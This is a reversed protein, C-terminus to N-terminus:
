HGKFKPKRKEQFAHLGEKMDKTAALLGFLAAEHHLGDEQSMDEGRLIAALASQIALPARTMLTRALKEAGSYLDQPPFVRSVLGMALAESASVAEGTLILDLAHARGVLRPLRQTGGFGPIMGLTVEPFGFQADESAVRLHCALALECGGGLAYGNVAAIVPKPFHEIRDLIRQGALAHAQAKYADLHALDNLDTGAAFAKDGAGTLIVARVADDHELTRFTDDLEKLLAHDLANLKEPRSLTLWCLRDHTEAHIHSM